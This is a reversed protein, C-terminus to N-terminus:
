IGRLLPLRQLSTRIAEALMLFNLHTDYGFTENRSAIIYVVNPSDQPFDLMGDNEILVIKSKFPASRAQTLYSLCYNRVAQSPISASMILYRLLIGIKRRSKMANEMAATM